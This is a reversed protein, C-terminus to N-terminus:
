PEEAPIPCFCRGIGSGINKLKLKQVKEDHWGITVALDEVDPTM